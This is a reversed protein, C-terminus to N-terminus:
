MYQHHFSFVTSCIKNSHHRTRFVPVPVFKLFGRCNHNLSLVYYLILMFTCISFTCTSSHMSLPIEGASEAKEKDVALIYDRDLAMIRFRMKKQASETDQTRYM